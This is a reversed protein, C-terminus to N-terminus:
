VLTKLVHAVIDQLPLQMAAVVLMPLAAPAAIAILGLKGVPVTRMSRVAQFVTQVDAVPGLEPADLIDPNGVDEKLIWRRHVLRGHHGVLSGYVFLAERKVKGLTPILPTFPILFIVTVLLATAILEGKIDAVNVSHFMVEHAFSSAAVTSLAFAVPSFILALREVFGVGAVRDPHVPAFALPFRSLKYFLVLVICARWLWALLLASFLPRVVLIFWWGGFTITGATDGPMNPWEMDEMQHVFAGATTWALVGGGILVWPLTHNKLRAVSALLARFRPMTDDSVLGSEVFYRLLPPVMKQAVGEAIVFMPIAILCRTHVGFHALLSDGRRFDSARGTAMAWVVIPLWCIAAFVLARRLVGLGGRPILGLRRQLRFGLDDRVLPLDIGSPDAAADAADAADARPEEDASM